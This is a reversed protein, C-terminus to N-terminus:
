RINEVKSERTQQSKPWYKTYEKIILKDKDPNEEGGIRKRWPLGTNLLHEKLIVNLKRRDSVGFSYAMWSGM